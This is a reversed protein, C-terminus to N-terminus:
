ASPLGKVDDSSVSHYVSKFLRSQVDNVVKRYQDRGYHTYHLATTRESHGIAFSVIEGQHDRKGQSIWNHRFDKMV